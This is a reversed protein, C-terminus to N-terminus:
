RNDYGYKDNIQGTIIADTFLFSYIGAYRRGDDFFKINRYCDLYEPLEM